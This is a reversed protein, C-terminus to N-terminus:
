WRRRGRGRYTKNRRYSKSRRRPGFGLFRRVILFLILLVAVLLALKVLPSQFFKTVRDLVFLVTSRSLDNLAVLNVRGCEKGDYHVTVYGLVQGKKIPAEASEANLTVKKEYKSTDVDVPLTAELDAEPHLVVYDAERSLTVPIEGIPDQAALVTQKKFNNFGWELLRKSESFSKRVLGGNEQVNEAGMVVSVLTRGNKVASALLCHGAQDTSGTKIGTAYKYIYGPIIWNSILYNTSHLIREPSLNTAPVTYNKTGVIKMFEAHKMAERAILFLDYATTYHNDDPLGHANVFHTGKCGLEQARQNMRAHFADLSGSVAEALINCSENASSVLACYLLNEVTMQEGTQINQTSGDDRLDVRIDATATIVQDLKLTGKGVAELTLLATMMKTISAPYMKDHANQEYLIEGSDADVLLAAKAEVQMDPIAFATIPLTLMCLVLVLATACLRKIKKM